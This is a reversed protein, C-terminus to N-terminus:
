LNLNNAFAPLCIVDSPKTPEKSTQWTWDVSPQPHTSYQTGQEEEQEDEEEFETADQDPEGHEQQSWTNDPSSQNDKDKSGSSQQEPSYDQGNMEGMVAQSSYSHESDAENFDGMGSYFSDSM